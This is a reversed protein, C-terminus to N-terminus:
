VPEASTNASRWAIVDLLAEVAMGAELLEIMQETTFGAQGGALALKEIGAQLKAKNMPSGCTGTECLM